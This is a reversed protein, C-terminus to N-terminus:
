CFSNSSYWPLKFYSFIWFDYSPSKLYKVKQLHAGRLICFDFNKMFAFNVTEFLQRSPVAQKMIKEMKLPAWKYFTFYRFLGDYSKQIKEWAWSWKCELLLKQQIDQHLGVKKNLIWISCQTNSVTDAFVKLLKQWIKDFM